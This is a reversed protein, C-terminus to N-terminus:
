NRRKQLQDFRNLVVNLAVTGNNGGVFVFQRGDSTVDYHVETPWGTYPAEFLARPSGLVPDAGPTAEFTVVYLSDEHRYFIERGNAGWRSETGGGASVLWRGATGDLRRVYV